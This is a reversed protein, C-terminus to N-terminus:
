PSPHFMGPWPVFQSRLWGKLLVRGINQKGEQEDKSQLRQKRQMKVSECERIKWVGKSQIADEDDLGVRVQLAEELTVRGAGQVVM